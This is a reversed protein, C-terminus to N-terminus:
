ASKKSTPAIHETIITTKNIVEVIEIKQDVSTENEIHVVPSEASFCLILHCLHEVM